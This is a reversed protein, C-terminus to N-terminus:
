WHGKYKSGDCYKISAKKGETNEECKHTDRYYIVSKVTTDATWIGTKDDKIIHSGEYEGKLKLDLHIAAFM